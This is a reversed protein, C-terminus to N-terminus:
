VLLPWRRGCEPCREPGSSPPDAIEAPFVIADDLGRLDYGCGRCSGRKSRAEPSSSRNAILRTGIIALTLPALIAVPYLVGANMPVLLAAPILMSPIVFFILVLWARGYMPGPYADKDARAYLWIFAHEIDTGLM